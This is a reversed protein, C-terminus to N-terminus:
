RTVPIPAGCVCGRSLAGATTAACFRTGIPDHDALAHPCAPCMPEAQEVAAGTAAAASTETSPM